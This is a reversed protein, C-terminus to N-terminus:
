YFLNSSIIKTKRKKNKTNLGKGSWIIGVNSVNNKKKM